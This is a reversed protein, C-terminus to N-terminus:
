ATRTRSGACAAASRRCKGDYTQPISHIHHVPYFPVLIFSQCQPRASKGAILRTHCLISYNQPLVLISDFWLSSDRAKYASRLGKTLIIGM